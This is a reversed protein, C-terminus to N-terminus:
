LHCVFLVLNPSLFWSANTKKLLLQRATQKYSDESKLCCTTSNLGCFANFFLTKSGSILMAPKTLAWGAVFGLFRSFSIFYPNLGQYSHLTQGLMYSTFAAADTVMLAPSGQWVAGVGASKVSVCTQHVSKGIKRFMRSEYKQTMIFTNCYVLFSCM